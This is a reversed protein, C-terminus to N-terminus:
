VKQILYIIIGLNLLVFAAFGINLKLRINKLEAQLFENTSEIRNLLSHHTTSINNDAIIFNNATEKKFKELDEITTYSNAAQKKFEELEEITIDKSIFGTICGDTKLEFNASDASTIEETTNNM